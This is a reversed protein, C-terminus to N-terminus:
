KPVIGACAAQADNCAYIASENLTVNSSLGGWNCVCNSQNPAQEYCTVSFSTGDSCTQSQFCKGPAASGTGSCSTPPPVPGIGGVCAEYDRVWVSCLAVAESAGTRCDLGFESAANRLCIVLEAGINECAGGHVGLAAVCGSLCEKPSGFQGPCAPDVCLATCAKGAASSMGGAGASAGGGQSAGGAGAIGPAGGKSPAGAQGTGPTGGPGSGSAGPAGGNSTSAGSGSVGSAGGKGGPSPLNSGDSTEYDGSFLEAGTRGGCAALSFLLFGGAM